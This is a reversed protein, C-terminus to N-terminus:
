KQDDRKMAWMACTMLIISACLALVFLLFVKLEISCQAKEVLPLVFWIFFGVLGILGFFMTLNFRM